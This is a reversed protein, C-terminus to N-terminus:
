NRTYDHAAGEGWLRIQYNVFRNYWVFTDILLYGLGDFIASMRCAQGTIM